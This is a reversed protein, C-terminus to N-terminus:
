FSVLVSGYLMLIVGSVLMGLRWDYSSCVFVIFILGILFIILGVIDQKSM